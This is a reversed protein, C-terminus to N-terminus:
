SLQATGKYWTARLMVSARSLCKIHQVQNACSQVRAVQTYTNSVTRPVTLLSYFFDRIAGKFAIIIIRSPASELIDCFETAMKLVTCFLVTIPIKLDKYEGWFVHSSLLRINAKHNNRAEACYWGNVQWTYNSIMTYDHTCDKRNM